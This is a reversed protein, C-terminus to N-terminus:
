YRVLTVLETNLGVNNLIYFGLTPCFLIHLNKHAKLLAAKLGKNPIGDDFSIDLSCVSKEPLHKLRQVKKRAFFNKM